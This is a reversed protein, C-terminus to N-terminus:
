HVSILGFIGADYPIDGYFLEPRDLIDAHYEDDEFMGDDNSNVSQDRNEIM